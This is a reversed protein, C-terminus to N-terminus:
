QSSLRLLRVVKWAFLGSAHLVFCIWAGARNWHPTARIPKSPFQWKAAQNCMASTALRRTVDLYIVAPGGRGLKSGRFNLSLAQQFETLSCICGRKFHAANTVVQHSNGISVKTSLFLYYSKKCTALSPHNDPGICRCQVHLCEWLAHTQSRHQHPGVIWWYLANAFSPCLILCKWNSMKQQRRLAGTALLESWISEHSAAQAGREIILLVLM